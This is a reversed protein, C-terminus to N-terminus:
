IIIGCKRRCWVGLLNEALICGALGFLGLMFFGQSLPVLRDAHVHRSYAFMPCGELIRGLFM